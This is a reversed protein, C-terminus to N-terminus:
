SQALLDALAGAANAFVLIVLVGVFGVLAPALGLAVLSAGFAILVALFLQGGGYAARRMSVMLLGAIGGVSRAANMAGLGEPGVGLVDRALSPFIAQHAFGLVEAGATLLMLVPLMPDRRTETVFDVLGQLLSGAAPRTTGDPASAPMLATAGALF